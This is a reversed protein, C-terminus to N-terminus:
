KSLSKLMIAARKNIGCDEFDYVDTYIINIFSALQLELRHKLMDFTDENMLNPPNISNNGDFSLQVLSITTDGALILFFM